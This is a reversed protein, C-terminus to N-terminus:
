RTSSAERSSSISRRARVKMAAIGVCRYSGAGREPKGSRLQLRAIALTELRFRKPDAPPEIGQSSRTLARAPKYLLRLGLGAHVKTKRLPDARGLVAVMDGPQHLAAALQDRDLWRARRACPAAPARDTAVPTVRDDVRRRGGGQPRTPAPPVVRQFLGWLEDPVLRQLFVDM